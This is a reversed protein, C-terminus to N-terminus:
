NGLSANVQALREDLILTAEEIITAPDADGWVRWAWNPGIDIGGPILQHAPFVQFDSVRTFNVMTEDVSRPEFHRAYEGIKWDDDESDPLERNWLRLAFMIDDIEQETYFHPIANFNPAAWSWHGGRASPGEPFSVFGWPDALNPLIQGSAVYHAAARTAALGTNFADIFFNWEGDIDEEHMALREDRLYRAWILTELFEPSSTANVFAGTAPDISVYGAGNSALAQSLFDDNFSAMGWTDNIGDNDLDRSLSRLMETFTDWNWRGEAQLQFPYDAPLGAEEFLRMNFYVGSSFLTENSFAHPRGDRTTLRLVDQNWNIDGHEFHAPDIGAFLGQGHMTSFWTPEMIWIHVDRNGANLQLSLLDRHDGWTGFYNQSHIRFNHTRELEMRDDWRLRETFSTPEVTDSNEDAWWNGIVIELGGLDRVPEAPTEPTTTTEQQNTTPNNTQPPQEENGGNNCAAFAFIIFALFFKKM